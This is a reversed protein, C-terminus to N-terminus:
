FNVVYNSNCNQRRIVFSFYKGYKINKMTKAINLERNHNFSLSRRMIPEYYEEVNSACSINIHRRMKSMKSM